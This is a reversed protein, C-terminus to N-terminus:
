QKAVPPAMLADTFTFYKLKADGTIVVTTATSRKLSLNPVSLLVRAENKGRVQLTVTGPVVDAYGAESRFNAGSFLKDTSGAISVDLEPANFAAHIVRLRAKGSDPVVDDRVVRLSHRSSDEEILFVTYSQGNRLVRDKEAVMMGDVASGVRMSLHAINTATETYETATGTKVSPFVTIEGLRVAVDPGGAVANVVRFQSKGLANISDASLSTSTEGASASKIPMESKECGVSVVTLAALAFLSLKQM